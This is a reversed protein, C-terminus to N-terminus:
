GTRPATTPSAPRATRCSAVNPVLAPDLTTAYKQQSAIFADPTVTYVVDVPPRQGAKVAQEGEGQGGPLRDPRVRRPTGTKATFATAQFKGLNTSYPDGWSRVIIKSPKEPEDGGGGSTRPAAPAAPPLPAAAGRQRRRERLRGARSCVRITGGAMLLPPPVAHATIDGYSGQAEPDM